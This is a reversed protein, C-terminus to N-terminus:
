RHPPHNLQHALIRVPLLEFRLKRLQFILINLLRQCKRSLCCAMGGLFYFGPLADVVRLLNRIGIQSFQLRLGQMDMVRLHFLRKGPTQGRWRWELVMGYGISLAFYFVVGLAQGLDPSIIKILAVTINLVILLVAFCLFDILWALFRVVPGALTQSFVVGEPTKILLTNQRTM